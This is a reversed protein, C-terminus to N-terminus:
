NAVFLILNPPKSGSGAGASCVWRASAPPSSLSRPPFPTEAADRARVLDIKLHFGPRVDRPAAVVVTDMIVRARSPGVDIVDRRCSPPRRDMWRCARIPRDEDLRSISRSSPSGRRPRQDQHFWAKSKHHHKWAPQLVHHMRELARALPYRNIEVDDYLDLLLCLSRRLRDTDIEAKPDFASM